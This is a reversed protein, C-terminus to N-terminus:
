DIRKFLFKTQSQSKFKNKLLFGKKVMYKDSTPKFHKVFGNVIAKPV